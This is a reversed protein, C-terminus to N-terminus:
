RRGAAELPVGEAREVLWPALRELAIVRQSPAALPGSWQWAAGPEDDLEIAKGLYRSRTQFREALVRQVALGAPTAQYELSADAEPALHLSLVLAQRDPKGFRGIRLRADGLVFEPETGPQLRQKRTRPEKPPFQQILWGSIAQAQKRALPYQVSERPSQEYIRQAGRVIRDGLLVLRDEFGRGHVAIAQVWVFAGFDVLQLLLDGDGAVYYRLGHFAEARTRGEVVRNRRRLLYQIGGDVISVERPGFREDGPDLRLESGDGLRLCLGHLAPQTLPGNQGHVRGRADVELTTGGPLRVVIRAGGFDCLAGGRTRVVRDTLRRPEEEWRKAPLM